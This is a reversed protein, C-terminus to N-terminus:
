KLVLLWVAFSAATLGCSMLFATGALKFWEWYSVLTLRRLRDVWDSGSTNLVAGGDCVDVDALCTLKAAVM